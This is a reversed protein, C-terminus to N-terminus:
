GVTWREGIPNGVDRERERTADDAKVHERLSAHDEGIPRHEREAAADDAGRVGRHRDQQHGADAHERDRRKIEPRAHERHREGRERQQEAVARKRFVRAAVPERGADREAKQQEGGIRPQDQEREHRQEDRRGLAPAAPEARDPRPGGGRDHHQDIDRM